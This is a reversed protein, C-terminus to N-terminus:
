YPVKKSRVAWFIFLFLFGALVLGVLLLLFLIGQNAAKTLPSNPNGVCVSCANAFKPQTILWLISLYSLNKSKKLFWFLYVVLCCGLGLSIASLLLYGNLYGWFSLFGGLAISIFIFFLHFAKLSM